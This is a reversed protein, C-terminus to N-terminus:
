FAQLCMLGVSIASIWIEWLRILVGLYHKQFNFWEQMNVGWSSGSQGFPDTRTWYDGCHRQGPVEVAYIQQLFSPLFCSDRLCSSPFRADFSYWYYLMSVFHVTSNLMSESLRKSVQKYGTKSVPLLDLLLWSFPAYWRRSHHFVSEGEASTHQSLSLLGILHSLLAVMAQGSQVHLHVSQRRNATKSPQWALPHATHIQYLPASNHHYSQQFVQYFWIM